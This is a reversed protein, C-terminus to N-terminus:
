SATPLENDHIFVTVMSPSPPNLVVEDGVTVWCHADLKPAGISNRDVGFHIKAPVNALTLFRYALIGERLCRRDRMLWPHRAALKVRSVIEAVPMGRYRRSSGVDSVKLIDAFSKSKACLFPLLRAWLWVESGLRRLPLSAAQNV